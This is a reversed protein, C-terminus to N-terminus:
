LFVGRQQTKPSPKEEVIHVHVPKVPNNENSWFYILYYMGRELIRESLTSPHMDRTQTLPYINKKPSFYLSCDTATIAACGGRKMWRDQTFWDQSGGFAGEVRFYPLEKRM